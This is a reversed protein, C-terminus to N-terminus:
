TPEDLERVVRSRVQSLLEHRADADNMARAFTLAGLMTSLIHQAKARREAESGTGLGDVFIQVLAQIHPEYARKARPTSKAMDSGLAAFTCGRSVEDAHAETLYESVILALGERGRECVITRYRDLMADLASCIAQTCLDEKNKFHSYLAGSTLGATKMIEDVPAGETGHRKLFPAAAKLIAEHVQKPDRKTARM